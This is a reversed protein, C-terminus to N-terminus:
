QKGKMKRSQKAESAIVVVKIGEFELFNFAFHMKQMNSKTSKLTEHAM